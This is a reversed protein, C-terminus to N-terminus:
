WSLTVGWGSGGADGWVLRGGQRPLHGQVQRVPNVYSNRQKRIHYGCVATILDARSPEARSPEARGSEAKSPKTTKQPKQPVFVGLKSLLDMPRWYVITLMGRSFGKLPFM